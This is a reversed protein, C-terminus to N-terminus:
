EDKTEEDIQQIIKTYRKNFLSQLEIDLENAKIKDLILVISQTDKKGSKKISKIGEDIMQQLKDEKAKISKKEEEEQKQEIEEEKMEILRKIEKRSIRERLEELELITDSEKKKLANLSDFEATIKNNIWESLNNVNQDILLKNKKTIYITTRNGM